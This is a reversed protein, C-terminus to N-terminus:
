TGGEAAIVAAEALAAAVDLYEGGPVVPRPIGSEDPRLRYALPRANPLNLASLEDPGLRDLM